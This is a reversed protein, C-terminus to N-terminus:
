EILNFIFSNIFSKFLVYLTSLDICLCSLLIRIIKKETTNIIKNNMDAPGAYGINLM